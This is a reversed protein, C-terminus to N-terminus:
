ASFANIGLSALTNAIGNSQSLGSYFQQKNIFIQRESGSLGGVAAGGLRNAVRSGVVDAIGEEDLSNGDGTSVAHVLEHVITKINNPDRVIIRSQDGRSITVGNIVTNGDAAAQQCTPCNSRSADAAGLGSVSPDGVEITVGKARAAALLKAGEPDSAIASLSRELQPNGGINTLTPGAANPVASLAAQAASADLTAGGANGAAKSAQAADFASRSTGGGAFQTLIMMMLQMMQTLMQMIAATGGAQQGALGPQAFAAQQQPLGLAAQPAVGFATPQGLLAQQPTGFAAQPPVGFPSATSLGFPTSSFLQPQTTGISSGFPSALGNSGLTVGGTPLGFQTQPVFSFPTAQGFGTLAQPGFGTLPPQAIGFQALAQQSGVGQFSGLPPFGGGAGFPSVGSPIASQGFFPGVIGQLMSPLQPATM